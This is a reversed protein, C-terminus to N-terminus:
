QMMVLTLKGLGMQVSISAVLGMWCVVAASFCRLFWPHQALFTDFAGSCCGQHHRGMQEENPLHATPEHSPPRPKPVGRHDAGPTIHWPPFCCCYQFPPLKPITPRSPAADMYIIGGALGTPLPLHGHGM